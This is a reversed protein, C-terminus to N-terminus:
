KKVRKLEEGEVRYPIKTKELFLKIGEIPGEYLQEYLAKEPQLCSWKMFQTLRFDGDELKELFCKNKKNYHNYKSLEATIVKQNFM